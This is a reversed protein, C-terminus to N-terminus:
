DKALPSWHMQFFGCGSTGLIIHGPEWPSFAVAMARQTPLGGRLERWTQGDDTSLMAPVSQIVDHYPHDTGAVLIHRPNHPSVAVNVCYPNKQLQTWEKGDYRWLGTKKGRWAALLVRGRRDVTLMEAAQPGGLPEFHQGDTTKWLNEKGSVYFTRPNRPDAAIWGLVDQEWCIRWNEGSDSSFYLKGNVVVWVKSSDEPLTYIGKAQCSDRKPLGREEGHLPTWMGEEELGGRLIGGGQGSQGTSVYVTGDKAFTADGGGGWANPKAGRFTWTKLGDRSEWVKGADMALLVARNPHYPDWRFNTCCLGSYGRGTWTWSDEKGVQTATIDQWTKGGDATAVIFEAGAAYVRNEDNPDITLVTVGMGSPYATPCAPGRRLVPEWHEGGDTSRYITAGNWARDSTYLVEPCSSALAFAKFGSTLNPNVNQVRSIGEMKARWTKGGDLSQYIGGPRCKEGEKLPPAAGLSCWLIERNQPHAVIREPYTHPLGDNCAQWTKGGDDSRFIGRSDVAVWLTKGDASFTAGVINHELSAIPQWHNGLDFSEWITGWLPKGPSGWRRSSGGFAYVHNPDHPDFLVKEIPASYHWPTVEPFGERMEQWHKGGDVSRYPGSMTGAFIINPDTPHFTCDGIEPSRFGLAVDWFKGGDGSVGISLLDGGVLLKRSDHPSVTVSTIWGGCGPEMLPKWLIEEAYVTSCFCSLLFICAVRM